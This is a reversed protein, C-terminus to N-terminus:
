QYEFTRFIDLWYGQFFYENEIYIKGGWKEKEKIMVYVLSSQDNSETIARDPLEDALIKAFSEYQPNQPGMMSWREMFDMSWECNRILFVSANIGLLSRKEYVNKEWGRILFNFYKYKKLPHEFEMDIIVVDQDM